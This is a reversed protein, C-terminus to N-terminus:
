THKPTPQFMHGGKTEVFKLDPINQIRNLVKSRCLVPYIHFKGHTKLASTPGDKPSEDSLWHVPQEGPVYESAPVPCVESAKHLVHANPWYEFMVEHRPSAHLRNSTEDNAPARLFVVGVQSAAARLPIADAM